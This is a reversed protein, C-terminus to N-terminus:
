LQLSQAGLSLLVQDDWPDVVGVLNVGCQRCELEYTELGSASLEPISTRQFAFFQGCHPCQLEKPEAVDRLRSMDASARQRADIDQCGPAHATQLYSKVAANLARLRNERPVAAIVEVLRSIGAVVAAIEESELLSSVAPVGLFAPFREHAFHL